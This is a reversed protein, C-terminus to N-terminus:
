LGIPSAGDAVEYSLDFDVKTQYYPPSIQVEQKNPKFFFELEVTEGAKVDFQGKIGVDYKGYQNLPGEFSTKKSGTGRVLNVKVLLEDGQVDPNTLTVQPNVTASTSNGNRIFLTGAKTYADQNLELDGNLVNSVESTYTKNNKSISIAAKTDEEVTITATNGTADVESFGIVIGYAISSFGGLALVMFSAISALLLYNKKKKKM